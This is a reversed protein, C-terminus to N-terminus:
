AVGSLFRRLREFAPTLRGARTVLARQIEPSVDLDDDGGGLGHSAIEYVYRRVQASFDLSADRPLEAPLNDVAM